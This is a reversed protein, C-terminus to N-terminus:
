RGKAKTGARQEEQLRQDRALAAEIRIQELMDDIAEASTPFSERSGAALGAFELISRQPRHRLMFGDRQPEFELVDGPKAGMQDRVAKPVTIQGQSTIRARIPKARRATIAM